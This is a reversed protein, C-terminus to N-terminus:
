KGPRNHRIHGVFVVSKPVGSTDDPAVRMRVPDGVLNTQSSFPDLVIVKVQTGPPIQYTSTFSSGSQPAEDPYQAMAATTGFLVLGAM